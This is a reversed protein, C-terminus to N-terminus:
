WEQKTQSHSVDGETLSIRLYTPLGLINVGFYIDFFSTQKM